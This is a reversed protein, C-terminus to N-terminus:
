SSMAVVVGAWVLATIGTLVGGALVSDPLYALTVRHRGASVPVATFALDVRLVQARRGDVWAKRGPYYTDKVLVIGPQPADVDMAMRGDHRDPDRVVAPVAPVCPGAGVLWEAPTGGDRPSVPDAVILRGRDLGATDEVLPHRVIAAVNVASSDILEYQWTRDGLFRVRTLHLATETETREQATAAPTWRVNIVYRPARLRFARDYRLTAIRAELYGRSVAAPACTWVARASSRVRRYVQVGGSSGALTWGPEDPHDCTILYDAGFLDILEARTPEQGAHLIGRYPGDDAPYGGLALSAMRAYASPYVGYGDVSPVDRELLQVPDVADKCAVLARGSRPPIVAARARQRGDTAAGVAPSANMMRLERSAVAQQLAYAPLTQFATMGAVLGALVVFQRLALWRAAASRSSLVEVVYVAVIAGGVFAAGRMSGSLMACAGVAVLAVAPVPRPVRISRMAFAIALPVWAVAYLAAPWEGASTPMIALMVAVGATVAGVSTANLARAIAYAGLGVLWVHMVITLPLFLGIPFLRLVVHAPYFALAQANELQPQGGFFYPDWLPLQAAALARRNEIEWAVHVRAEPTTVEPALGTLVGAAPLVAVAALILLPLVRALARRIM